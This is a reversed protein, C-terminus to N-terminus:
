VKWFMSGVSSVLKYGFLVLALFPPSKFDGLPLVMSEIYLIPIHVVMHAMPPPQGMIPHHCLTVQLPPDPQSYSKMGSTPCNTSGWTGTSPHIMSEFLCPRRSPGLLVTCKGAWMPFCDVNIFHGTTQSHDFISSPYQSRGQVQGWFKQRNRRNIGNYM